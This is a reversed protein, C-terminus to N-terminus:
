QKNNIREFREKRWRDMGYQAMGEILMEPVLHGELGKVTYFVEGYKDTMASDLIVPVLVEDGTNYKTVM